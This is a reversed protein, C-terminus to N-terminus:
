HDHGGPGHAHGHEKEEETADRVETIEVAFHLTQGALPHNFDVTVKEEAMATIRGMVPHGDNTQAQFALGVELPADDPFASREVVQIAEDDHDGYADSPEVVVSLNEGQGHGELASELGPIIQGSGHMYALPDGGESSDVVQGDALKLEYNLTVVKGAGVTTPSTM